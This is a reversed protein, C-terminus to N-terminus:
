APLIQTFDWNPYKALIQAVLNPEGNYQLLNFRNYTKIEQETLPMLIEHALEKLKPDAEVPLGDWFSFSCLEAVFSIDAPTPVPVHRRVAEPHM